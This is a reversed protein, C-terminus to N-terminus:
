HSSQTVHRRSPIFAIKSCSRTLLIHYEPNMGERQRTEHVHSLYERNEGLLTAWPSNLPKMTTAIKNARPESPDRLLKSSEIKEISM